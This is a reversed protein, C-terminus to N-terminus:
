SLGASMSPLPEICRNMNDQENKGALDDETRVHGPGQELCFHSQAADGQAGDAEQNKNPPGNLPLLPFDVFPLLITQPNKSNRGGREDDLDLTAQSGQIM